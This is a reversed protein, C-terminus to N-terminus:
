YGLGDIRMIGDTVCRAPNANDLTSSVTIRGKTAINHPTAHCIFPITGLLLFLLIRIYM